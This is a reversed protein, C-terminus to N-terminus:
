LIVGVVVCKQVYFTFWRYVFIFLIGYKYRYFDIFIVKMVNSLM